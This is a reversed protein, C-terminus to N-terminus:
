SAVSRYYRDICATVHRDFARQLLDSQRSDSMGEYVHHLAILMSAATWGRAHAEACVRDATTSLQDAPQSLAARIDEALSSPFHVAPDIPPSITKASM